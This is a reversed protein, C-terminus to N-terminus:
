FSYIIKHMMDINLNLDKFWTWKLLNKFKYLSMPVIIAVVLFIQNAHCEFQDVWGHMSGMHM